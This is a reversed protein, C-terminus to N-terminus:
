LTRTWETVLLGPIMWVLEYVLLHVATLYNTGGVWALAGMILLGLIGGIMHIIVGLRMAGRLVRAGTIAFAKPALGPKTTLAIVPDQEDATKELLELKQNWGPFSLNRTNVNFKSRLFGETVMFDECLVVPNLGRYGSLTRLGAVTARQRQYTVAFVGALEGNIACYVAQHVRTGSGMEVGMDQMFDVTGVHVSDPGIQGGIGGSYLHLDNVTYAIGSRSELMKAFLPVLTGGGQRILATTYAVVQDPTYNGYFKMGNSKVSSQPFLDTDSLPFCVQKGAAQVGNWGCLVTGLRHLQKELITLPRIVSLFATAPMGILLACTCLQIGTSVGHRVGALIGVAISVLLASFSYWNLVKEPTSPTQFTDMFHEVEGKGQLVGPRGDLYDNVRILADLTTARRMTDMMGMEARRRDYAAWIAMFMELSFAASVSVRLEQLCLVGDVCSVLFTVALLTNGNFRLRLLASLGDLLRYCGLLGSLLLGLFQGFVLLRMRNEGIVGMAYLATSGACLLFVVLCLIMSIQLKGLGLEMLEYYKKEPGTVLKERLEKLRSRPRFPIPEQPPLEGMPEEYEPEWDESFPEVPEFAVTPEEVPEPEAEPTDIRIPTFEATDGLDATTAEAVAKRVQDLRITDGTVEPVPEPQIPEPPTPLIPEQPQDSFERMIDDLNFELELNPEM